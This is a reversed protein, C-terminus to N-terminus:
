DIAYLGVDDLITSAGRVTYDYSTKKTTPFSPHSFGFIFSSHSIYTAWGREPREALSVSICFNRNGVKLKLLGINKKSM